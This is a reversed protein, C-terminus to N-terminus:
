IYLMVLSPLPPQQFTQIDSTHIAINILKFILTGRIFEHSLSLTSKSKCIPSCSHSMFPLSCTETFSRETNGEEKEDARGPTVTCLKRKILVMEEGSTGAFDVCKHKQM